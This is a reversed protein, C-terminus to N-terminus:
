YTPYKPYWRISTMVINNTTSPAILPSTLKPTSLGDFLKRDIMQWQFGFTFRGIDGNYLNQWFGVTVDTLWQTSAACNSTGGSFSAATTIACGFNVVNPNGVGLQSLTIAGTAGPTALFGTYFNPDEKEVGGYAYIDLGTWPHWVVGGMGAAEKIPHLSGDGAVIVDPLQGASYRGIGKGVIAMGSLDLYSPLISWLFSGGIGAGTTTHNNTSGLNATSFPVACVGAATVISCNFINDTFFREVGFVEFHAWGPDFAVKEIIDPIADVTFTNAIGGSGLFQGGANNYNVIVGNVGTGSAVGGAVLEAPSEVSVGASWMPGFEQVFRAQWNRTYEFGVVYNHDIVLPINEKRPVIGVTNQTLLSWAQGALFHFGYNADDYTMHAQRLRPAWSNSQNYNSTAGVGFFDTELYGSLKRKPDINGEALLSIRTARASASFESEGYAPQFPFPAAGFNTAEDSEMNHQRWATEAAFFGGLTIHVREMAPMAKVLPSRPRAAQDAGYANQLADADASKKKAQAIEGKLTKMQQQVQDLQRQLQDVKDSDSATQARSPGGCLVLAGVCVGCLLYLFTSRARM